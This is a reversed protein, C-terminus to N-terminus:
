RDDSLDGTSAEPIIGSALEDGSASVKDSANPPQPQNMHFVLATDSGLLLSDDNQAPLGEEGVRINNVFTGQESGCDFVLLQGGLWRIEAHKQSITESPIIIDNDAGRGITVVESCIDFAQDRCLMPNDQMTLTALRKGAMLDATLVDIRRPRGAAVAVKGIIRTRSGRWFFALSAGLLFMGLRSIIASDAWGSRTTVLGAVMGHSRKDLHKPRMLHVEFPYLKGSISGGLRAALGAAFLGSTLQGNAEAASQSVAGGRALAAVRGSRSLFEDQGEAFVSYQPLMLLGVVLVLVPLFRVHRGM